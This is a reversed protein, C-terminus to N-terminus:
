NAVATYTVTSTYNGSPKSLDAAAEYWVTTSDSASASATTKFTTATATPGAWKTQSSAAANTDASTPGAGFGSQGDVRYGWTNVSLATPTGPTGSTAALTNAGNTLATPSASLQLQYGATSNTGATVTDSLSTWAGASTPTINLTVSGSTTAISAVKAIVATVTTTSAASVVVPTLVLGVVAIVGAGLALSSKVYAKM